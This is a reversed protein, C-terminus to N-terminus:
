PLIHHPYIGFTYLSPRGLLVDYLINAEVLLYHVRKEENDLRTSLRTRLEVYGWIDVRKDAFGVIQENYPVILDKSLDM